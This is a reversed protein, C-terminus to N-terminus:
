WRRVEALEESDYPHEVLDRLKGDLSSWSSAEAM